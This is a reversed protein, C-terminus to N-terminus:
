MVDYEGHMENIQRVMEKMVMAVGQLSTLLLQDDQKRTADFAEMVYQFCM